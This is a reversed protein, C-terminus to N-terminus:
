LLLIIISFINQFCAIRTKNNKDLEIIIEVANKEKDSYKFFLRAEEGSRM